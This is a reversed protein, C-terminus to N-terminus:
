KPVDICATVLKKNIKVAYYNYLDPSSFIGIPNIDEHFSRDHFDKVVGVIPGEGYGAIKLKKGLLDDASSLDLKKAFTENVIFETATYAPLLNRGAVLELGFTKLYHEDGAKESLRFEQEKPNNEYFPTTNRNGRFAPAAYCLAVQEVGSLHELQAKLTKASQYESAVPIM